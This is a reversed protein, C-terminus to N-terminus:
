TEVTREKRTRYKKLRNIKTQIIYLPILGIVGFSCDILIHFLPIGRITGAVFAICHTGDFARKPDKIYNQYVDSTSVWGEPSCNIHFETCINEDELSGNVLLNQAYTLNSLLCFIALIFIWRSPANTKKTGSAGQEM